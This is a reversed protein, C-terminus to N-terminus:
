ADWPLRLVAARGHGAVVLRGGPGLGLHQPDAKFWAGWRQNGDPGLLRLHRGELVLCTGDQAVAKFRVRAQVPRKFVAGGDGPRTLVLGDFRSEWLLLGGDPSPVPREGARKWLESGDPRHLRMEYGEQWVEACLLSGDASLGLGRLHSNNYSEYSRKWANNWAQAQLDWADWRAEMGAGGEEPELLLAGATYLRGGDHSLVAYKMYHGADEYRLRPGLGRLDPDFSQIFWPTHLCARRGDASLLIRYSQRFLPPEFALSPGDQGDLGCLHLRDESAWLVKGDPRAALALARGEFARTWRPGPADLDLLSVRQGPGDLVVLAWPAQASVALAQLESELGLDLEPCARRAVFSFRLRERTEWALWAFLALGAGLAWGWARLGLAALLALLLLLFVYRKLGHPM